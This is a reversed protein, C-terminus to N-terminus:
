PYYFRELYLCINRGPPKEEEFSCRHLRPSSIEKSSNMFNDSLILKIYIEESNIKM